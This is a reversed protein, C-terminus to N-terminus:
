VCSTISRPPKPLGVINTFPSSMYKPWSRSCSTSAAKVRGTQVALELGGCRTYKPRQTARFAQALRLSNDAANLAPFRLLELPTPGYPFCLEPMNGPRRSPARPPSLAQTQTSMKTRGAPWGAALQLPPQAMQAPLAASVVNCRQAYRAPSVLSAILQRWRFLPAHLAGKGTRM